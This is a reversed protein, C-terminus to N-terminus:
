YGSKSQVPIDKHLIAIDTTYSNRPKSNEDLLSVLAVTFLCLDCIQDGGAPHGSV